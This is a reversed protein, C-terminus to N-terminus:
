SLCSHKRSVALLPGIVMGQNQFIHGADFDHFKCNVILERGANDLCSALDGGMSTKTLSTATGSLYLTYKCWFGFTEEARAVTACQLVLDAM